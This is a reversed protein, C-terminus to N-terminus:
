ARVYLSIRFLKPLLPFPLRHRQVLRFGCGEVAHEIDFINRVHYDGTFGAIKRCIGYVVNETPGSIILAGKPGLKTKFKQVVGELNDVHELVDAAIIVDLSGDPIASSVEDPSLLQVNRCQYHRVTEKAGELCIDTAYLKEFRKALAPLLLGVGCGFELGARGDPPRASPIVHDVLELIVDLRRFMIWRVLPNNHTYSPVASEDRQEGTISQSFRLVLDKDVRVRPLGSDNM